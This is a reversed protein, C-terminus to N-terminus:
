NLAVATGYATHEVRTPHWSKFSAKSIGAVASDFRVGVVANAGIKRAAMRMEEIASKCTGVISSPKPRGKNFPNPILGGSNSHEFYATGMVTDLVDSVERGPVADATVCMIRTDAAM